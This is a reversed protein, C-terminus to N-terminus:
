LTVCCVHMVMVPLFFFSTSYKLFTEFQFMSLTGLKCKDSNQLSHAMETKTLYFLCSTADGGADNSAHLTMEHIANM